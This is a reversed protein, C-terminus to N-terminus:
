RKSHHAVLTLDIWDLHQQQCDNMADDIANLYQKEAKQLRQQVKNPFKYRSVILIASDQPGNSSPTELRFDVEKLTMGTVEEGNVSILM